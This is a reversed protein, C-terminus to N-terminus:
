SDGTSSACSHLVGHFDGLLLLLVDEYLFVADGEEDGFVAGFVEFAAFDAVM